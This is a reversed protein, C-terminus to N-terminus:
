DSKDYRIGYFIAITDQSLERGIALRLIKRDDGDLRTATVRFQLGDIECLSQTGFEDKGEHFRALRVDAIAAVRLLDAGSSNALVKGLLTFLLLFVGAFIVAAVLVEILSFGSQFRVGFRSM